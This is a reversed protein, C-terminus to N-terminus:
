RQAYYVTLFGSLCKKSELKFTMAAAKVVVDLRFSIIDFSM